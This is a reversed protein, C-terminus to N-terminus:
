GSGRISCFLFGVEQTLLFLEFVCDNDSSLGFVLPFLSPGAVLGTVFALLICIM